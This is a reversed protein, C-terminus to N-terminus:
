RLQWLDVTGGHQIVLTQGDPLFTAHPSTNNETMLTRLLTGDSVRWLQLSTIPGKDTTGLQLTTTTDEGAGSEEILALTQGDPSFTVSTVWGGHGELTRLLTGDSVRWLQVRDYGWSALIQGEPSVPASTVLNTQGEITRLLSGDSVRWLQISDSVSDSVSVLTQGDLSFAVNTVWGGHGELTRLLTGDSVRWLQVTTDRSGSALTQGDPSFTVSTISDAHGELTRLLTGDSVKWLQVTTDDTVSAFTQGDPSFAWNLLWPYIQQADLSRLLTGDSVRWFQVTYHEAYDDGIWSAVLALNQGTPSFAVSDVSKGYGEPSRVLTDMIRLQTGDSVQRLQVTAGSLGLALTQGNPSFAMKNVGTDLKLTRLLTGDFGRWLEVTNANFNVSALTQGDPSFATSDVWGELTHQAIWCGQPTVSHCLWAELDTYLFHTGELRTQDYPAEKPFPLPDSGKFTYTALTQGTRSERLELDVEYRYATIFPGKDYSQSGLNYEREPGILAVLETGNISAPSWEDPLLENWDNLSYYSNGELTVEELREVYASGSTTMLIVPHPGPEGPNYVAADPVGQGSIVPLM